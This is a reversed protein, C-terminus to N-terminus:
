IIKEVTYTEVGIRIVKWTGTKTVFSDNLSLKKGLKTELLIQPVIQIQNQNM